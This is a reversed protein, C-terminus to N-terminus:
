SIKFPISLKSIHYNVNKIKFMHNTSKPNLLKGRKSNKIIKMKLTKPDEDTNNFFIKEDFYNILTAPVMTIKQSKLYELRHHGDILLYSKNCIILSPFEEHNFEINKLKNYNIKEHKNILNINILENSIILDSLSQYKLNM